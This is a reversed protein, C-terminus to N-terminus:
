VAHVVVVGAPAESRNTLDSLDPARLAGSALGLVWVVSGVVLWTISGTHSALDAATTALGATAVSPLLWAGHAHERLDNRPRSGVDRIALPALFLWAALAAVGLLWLAWSEAVFRVGLVACAAVSTFLRLAVDPDGVEGVASHPRGAVRIMLGLALAVFVVTALWALPISLWPYGHDDAAVAVIGTAM